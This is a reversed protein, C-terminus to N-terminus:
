IHILSLLLAVDFPRTQPQDIRQYLCNLAEAGDKADVVEAGWHELQGVLVERNTDNDDVILLALESISVRPMVVVSQQSPQFLVSFEFHTGKGLESSVSISGGMLECLKKVISLGLGTGGYKRTTSADVQTFPDFLTSIKAQPIGIGTDSISCFFIVENNNIEKLGARIVIEGSKTFKIANGVINSLIQRLRGPDGKVSSQEVQTVDLVLEIFKEQARLAMAESFDGLMTRLNFDMVELEIKGAEVKSFDLIDNILSLLSQASTQALLAKHRQKDTLPSGLLLGLMGLVGNMPTRIEHSM